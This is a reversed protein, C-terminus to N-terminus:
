RKSTLLTTSATGVNTRRKPQQQREVREEEPHADDADEAQAALAQRM